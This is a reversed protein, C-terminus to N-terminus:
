VCQGDRDCIPSAICDVAYDSEGAQISLRSEFAKGADESMTGPDIEARGTPSSRACSKFMEIREEEALHGVLLRGSATWNL